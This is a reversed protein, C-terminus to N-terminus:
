HRQKLAQIFSELDNAQGERYDEPYLLQRMFFVSGVGMAQQANHAFTNLRQEVASRTQHSLQDLFPEATEPLGALIQTKQELLSRHQDLDYSEELIKDAKQELERIREAQESLKDELTDFPSDSM